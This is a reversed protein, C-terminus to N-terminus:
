GRASQGARKPDDGDSVLVTIAYLDSPTGSPDDDVYAHTAQFTIEGAGLTLETAAGDGWGILVTHTDIPDQTTFFGHLTVPKGEDVSTNSLTLNDEAITPSADAMITVANASFAPKLVVGSVPKVGTITAFQGSRMASKVIDFTQNLSPTFDNALRLNLTGALNATGTVNLQDFGSGPNPGDIEITLQGSAAQTYNGTINLTGPSQGPSLEGKNTLTVNTVILTGTGHIVGDVENDLSTGTITLNAGDLHLQGSNIHKAGARGLTTATGIRTTGQNILETALTRIGGGGANVTNIVGTSTNTLTGGGNVTLTVAGSGTGQSNTLVILGANIFASGATVTTASGANAQILLTQGPAVNGNFNSSGRLAFAGSDISEPGINLTSASLAPTGDVTGGNFNFTDNDATFAGAVDLSGDEQDFFMGAGGLNVTAGTTVHVNGHNVFRRGNGSLTSSTDFNILGQNVVDATLTRTGGGGANVTQIVGTASNTLPGGNVTLTVSGSGTAQTNTLVITGANTFGATSSLTAQTGAIAQVL